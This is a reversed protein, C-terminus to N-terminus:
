AHIVRRVLYLMIAAYFGALLDDVVVGWGGSLRQSQYVPFPKLVDFLRFLVFGTVVVLLPRPFFALALWQGAVEDIVIPKADKGLAKEAIGSAWVAVPAFVLIVVLQWFLSVRSQAFWWFIAAFLSGWSGPAVPLYGIHGLTALRVAFGNM